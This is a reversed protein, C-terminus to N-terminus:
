ARPPPATPPSATNTFQTLPHIPLQTIPPEPSRPLTDSLVAIPGLMSLLTAAGPDTTGRCECSRKAPKSHHMPCEATGTHICTCTVADAATHVRDAFLSLPAATLLSLQCCLWGCVIWTLRRRRTVVDSQLV